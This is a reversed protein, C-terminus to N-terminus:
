RSNAIFAVVRLKDSKGPIVIVVPAQKYGGEWTRLREVEEEHLEFVIGWVEGKEDPVINAKGSHDRASKKNFHLTYGNLGGSMWRLGTRQVRHEIQQRNMNSGYAFYWM